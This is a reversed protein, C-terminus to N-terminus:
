VKSGPPFVDPLSYLPLLLHIPDSPYGLIKQLSLPSPSSFPFANQPIFIFCLSLAFYSIYFTCQPVSLLCFSFIFVPGAKFFAIYAMQLLLLRIGYLPPFEM